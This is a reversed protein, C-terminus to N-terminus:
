QPHSHNRGAEFPSEMRGGDVSSPRRRTDAGALALLHAADTSALTGVLRGDEIVALLPVKEQELRQVAGYADDTPAVMKVQQLVETLRKRDREAEPVAHIDSLTVAGVVASGSAVPLVYRREQRMTALAANLTEDEDMAAVRPMMLEVVTMRELAARLLVQEAEAQAGMFVVFAILLLLFNASFFGFVAFLIAFGKGVRAALQTAAVRGKKPTMLARLIRGGDMPFAPILNFIGLFLNLQALYFFAFQLNFM